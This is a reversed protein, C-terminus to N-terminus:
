YDTSVLRISTRDRRLKSSPVPNGSAFSRLGLVFNMFVGGIFVSDEGDAM